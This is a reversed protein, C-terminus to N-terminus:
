LIDNELNGIDDGRYEFQIPQQPDGQINHNLDHLSFAAVDQYPFVAFENGPHGAFGPRINGVDLKVPDAPAHDLVGSFGALGDQDGVGALFLLHVAAAGDNGM